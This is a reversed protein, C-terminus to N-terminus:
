DFQSQAVVTRVGFKYTAPTFYFPSSNDNVAAETQEPIVSEKQCNIRFFM